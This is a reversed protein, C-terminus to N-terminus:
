LGAARTVAAPDLAQILVLRAEVGRAAAGHEVGRQRVDFLGDFIKLM